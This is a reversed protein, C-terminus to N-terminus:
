SAIIDLSLDVSPASHTLCGLSIADVGTAAVAEVNDLTVNGSAEVGCRGDVRRVCAEMQATDMNDLLVWDPKARLARDLHDLSEVEVEVPVGPAHRRVEVVADDLGGHEGGPWFRRHNDKIMARDYLGMRHNKGGGCRVAYKELIRLTPTTKRTDLIVTRYRRVREVFTNTLTAIGSMRQLFNLATREAQLISTASGEIALITEGDRAHHGEPVRADCALAGDIALFVAAAVDGGSVVLAQRALIEATASRGPSVLARTTVDGAGVDEALARRVLDRVDPHEAISSEGQM